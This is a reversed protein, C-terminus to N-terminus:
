SCTDDNKGNSGNAPNAPFTPAGSGGAWRYEIACDSEGATTGPYRWVVKNTDQRVEWDGADVVDRISGNLGHNASPYGDHMRINVGGVEIESGNGYGNINCDADVVCKMHALEMASKIARMLASRNARKADSSLDIFKPAATAALIGLIVIVIVLEILTFGNSRHQM